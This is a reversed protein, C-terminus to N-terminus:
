DEDEDEEEEEEEEFDEDDDDDFDELDTDEDALVAISGLRDSLSDVQEQLEANEAELKEIKKQMQTANM